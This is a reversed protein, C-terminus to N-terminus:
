KSFNITLRKKEYNKRYQNLVLNYFNEEWRLYRKMDEKGIEFIEAIKEFKINHLTLPKGYKRFAHLLVRFLMFKIPLKEVLWEYDIIVFSDNRIIINGLHM